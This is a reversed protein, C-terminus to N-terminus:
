LEGPFTVQERLVIETFGERQQPGGTVVFRTGPLLLVEPLGQRGLADDNM